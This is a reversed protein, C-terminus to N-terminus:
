AQKTRAIRAILHRQVVSAFLCALL